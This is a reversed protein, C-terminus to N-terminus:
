IPIIVKTITGLTSSEINIKGGMLNVRNELSKLGFGKSESKASEFDFGRGNDAAEILLETNKIEVKIQAEAAESHKLINNLLEQIIRYINIEKEKDFLGNVDDVKIEFKINSINQINTFMSAIAKTLGLRDLQYPHLHYSIRRVEDIAGGAVKSIEEFQEHNDKKLLALNKIVLLDQGISDHLESAIRKREEEQSHILRRSFDEQMLKEKKLQTVRRYYIIPGTSLFLFIILGRFWWTMWFPPTIIISISKVNENWVGDANTAKIKFTYNGPDLNTYTASHGSGSNIWDKDFGEMMYLYRVSSPSNYDLAAFEFSFVDQNYDLIIEDAYANSQKLPSDVGPKVSENFVLFDTLVVSPNLTSLTIEGPDFMTLGNTSGFFMLNTKTKLASEYNFVSGPLGDATTFNTFSKKEVNFFSIGFGTGLWLNGNADELISKVSNDPLGDKVSFSVVEAEIDYIDSGKNRVTFKNLGSSTGIWLVTENKDPPTKTSVCISYINNSNLNNRSNENQLWHHFIVHDSEEFLNLGGGRTGLWIRGLWDEKIVWVDNGSISEPDNMENLWVDYKNKVPNIRSVGVGWYGVWISNRSDKLLTKNYYRSQTRIRPDDLDRTKIYSTELNVQKLGAGFSGIWLDGASGSALSWVPTNEFGPYSRMSKNESEPDLYYLGETTGFWLKGDQTETIATIDKKSIIEQNDSGYLATLDSNFRANKPSLYSIGNDTAIWIVGSRDKIIQNIQNDILSHPDDDNSLFRKAEGTVIDMKILGAYSNVWIIRSDKLIEEIVFGTSTGYLLNQPNPIEVQSFTNEVTNFKTLGNATGLWIINPNIASQSLSWIINHSITNPDSPNYYYREFDNSSSPNFKNFGIYTAILINGSNDEIISRVYNHSLSKPNEPNFSWHDAKNDSPNLRYVGDSYTGIWINRQKDEYICTISNEESRGSKIKRRVFTESVPNYENLEGAKTGIWLNGSHGTMLSWINNSSISNSDEPDNRFIKFSYGDYRNLGDDTGFWLFGTQDQVIAYVSNSSLGQEVDIRGFHLNYDSSQAFLWSGWISFLFASYYKFGYLRM